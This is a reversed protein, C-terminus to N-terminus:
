RAAPGVWGGGEPNGFPAFAAQERSERWAELAWSVSHFALATWPIDAWRFLGVELSEPGAAVDLTVLRARHFIQVQSRRPIDYLALLGDLRLDACAEEQAERRVAEAVTEGEEMYGAPLTWWGKRPQIARRCLLILVEDLPVAGPGHPPGNESWAAVAGVVIKPNVYDVFGCRDCVSRERDEGPPVRLSFAPESGDSM